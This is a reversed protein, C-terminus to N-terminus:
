LSGLVRLAKEEKIVEEVKWSNIKTFEKKFDQPTLHSLHPADGAGETDEVIAFWVTNGHWLDVHITHGVGLSRYYGKRWPKDVELYVGVIALIYLVSFCLVGILELSM